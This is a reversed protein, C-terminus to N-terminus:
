YADKRDFIDVVTVERKKDDISYIVRYDGVRIRWGNPTAKLKKCGSPRPEMALDEIANELREQVHAPFTDLKKNARRLISIAYPDHM